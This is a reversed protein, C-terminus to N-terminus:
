QYRHAKAPQQFLWWKKAVLIAEGGLHRNLDITLTGDDELEAEGSGSVEDMEDIGIWTFFATNAGSHGDDYLISCRLPNLKPMATSRRCSRVDGSYLSTPGKAAAPGLAHIHQNADAIESSIRHIGGGWAM